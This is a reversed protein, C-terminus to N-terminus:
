ETRIRRAFAYEGRGVTNVLYSNTWLSPLRSKLWPFEDRLHHATEKKLRKVVKHVGYQPPVDLLMEVMYTNTELFLIQVAQERCIIHIWEKLKIDVDDILVSKQQRTCWIIHYRCCHVVKQTIRLKM